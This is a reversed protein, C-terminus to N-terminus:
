DIREKLKNIDGDFQKKLRRNIKIMKNEISEITNQPVKKSDLVIYDEDFITKPEQYDVADTLGSRMSANSRSVQSGLDGFQQQLYDFKQLDLIM